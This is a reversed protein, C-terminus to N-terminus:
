TNDNIHAGINEVRGRAFNADGLDSCRADVRRTICAAVISKAEVFVIRENAFRACRVQALRLGLDYYDLKCVVSM